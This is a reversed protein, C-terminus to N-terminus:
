IIEHLQYFNKLGVLYLLWTYFKKNKSRLTLKVEEIIENLGDISLSGVLIGFVESEKAKEILNFRKYFIRNAVIQSIEISKYNQDM